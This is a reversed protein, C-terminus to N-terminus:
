GNSFGYQLHSIQINLKDWESNRSTVHLILVIELLFGSIINITQDTKVKGHIHLQYKRIQRELETQDNHYYVHLFYM